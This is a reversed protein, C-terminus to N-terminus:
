RNVTPQLYRVALTDIMREAYQWGADQSFDHGFVDPSTAARMCLYNLMTYCVFSLDVVDEQDVDDIDSMIEALSRGIRDGAQELVETVETPNMLESAMVRIIIPRARMADLYNRWVTKLKDCLDMKAFAVRDGGILEETTPWNAERELWARILGPLGGFYRYILDKGVGAQAVVRNVGIGDAGDRLLLYGCADILTQETAERNKRRPQTAPVPM